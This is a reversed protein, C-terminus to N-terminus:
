SALEALIQKPTYDAVAGNHFLCEEHCGETSNRADHTIKDAQQQSEARNYKLELVTKCECVNVGVIGQQIGTRIQSSRACGEGSNGNEGCCALAIVFLPKRIVNVM